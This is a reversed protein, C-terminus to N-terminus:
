WWGPTRPLKDGVKWVRKWGEHEELGEHRVRLEDSAIEMFFLARQAM